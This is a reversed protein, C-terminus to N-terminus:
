VYRKSNSITGEPRGQTKGPSGPLPNSINKSIISRGSSPRPRRTGAPSFRGSVRVSISTGGGSVGWCPSPTRTMIRGCSATRALINEKWLLYFDPTSRNTTELGLSLLVEASWGCICGMEELEDEFTGKISSSVTATPRSHRVNRARGSLGPLSRPQKSSGYSSLLGGSTVAPRSTRRHHRRVAEWEWM